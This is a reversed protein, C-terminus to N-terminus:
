VYYDYCYSFLYSDFGFLCLFSRMKERNYDQQKFYEKDNFFFFFLM